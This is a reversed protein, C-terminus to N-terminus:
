RGHSLNEMGADVGDGLRADEARDEDEGAGRLDLLEPPQEQDEADEQDEGADLDDPVGGVLRRV